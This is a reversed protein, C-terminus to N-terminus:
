QLIRYATVITLYVFKGDMVDLHIFDAGAELISITQNAMNSLDCALLSPGILTPLKVTLSNM